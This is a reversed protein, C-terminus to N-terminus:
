ESDDLLASASKAMQEIIIPLLENIDRLIEDPCDLLRREKNALTNELFFHFSKGEGQWKIRYQERTHGHIGIKKTKYEVDVESLETSYPLLVNNHILEAEYYLVDRIYKSVVKKNSTDGIIKHIENKLNDITSM